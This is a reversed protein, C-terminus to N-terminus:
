SLMDIIDKLAEVYGVEYGWGFVQDQTSEDDLLEGKEYLEYVWLMGSRELKEEILEKM